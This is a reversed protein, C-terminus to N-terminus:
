ESGEGVAEVNLERAIEALSKRVSKYTMVSARSIVRLTSIQGLHTILEDTMGEAFYDQSADGSLNELPLVALSRIKSSSYNWPYLIWFLAVALGLALGLGFLRWVLSHRLRKWAAGLHGSGSPDADGAVDPATEPQRSQPDIAEVDALFRYGRRAVTEVFRPSEASDGLAERIKNIAKNLGHDFDVITDAPWLKEQLEERTVVEGAHDVLMALVQFPQEQIKIKLGHKRLEGARLDVEYVGFRLRGALHHGEPM